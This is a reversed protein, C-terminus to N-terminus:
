INEYTRIRHQQHFFSLFLLFVWGIEIRRDKAPFRSVSIIAPSSVREYVWHTRYIRSPDDAYRERSVDRRTRTPPNTVVRPNGADRGAKSHVDILLYPHLANEEEEEDHEEEEEEEESRYDFTNPDRPKTTTTTTALLPLLSPASNSRAMTSSSAPPPTGAADAVNEKSWQRRRAHPRHRPRFRSRPSPLFSALSVRQMRIEVFQSRDYYESLLLEFRHVDLEGLRIPEKHDHRGTRYKETRKRIPPRDTLACRSHNERFIWRTTM